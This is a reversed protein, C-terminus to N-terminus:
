TSRPFRASFERHVEPTSDKTLEKARYGSSLSTVVIRHDQTDFDVRWEKLALRMGAGHPRIRRYAHPQPGLALAAEIRPQLDVGRALLWALEERAGETFAVEWAPVPDRTELWGARAEPHSDAYAVYPKLDLVPSGDLVDLERVHM